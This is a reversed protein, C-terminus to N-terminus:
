ATTSCTVSRRYCSHRSKGGGGGSEGKKGVGPILSAAGKLVRGTAKWTGTVYKSVGKVTGTALRGAGKLLGKIARGRNDTLGLRMDELTLVVNGQRDVVAGDIDKISRIVKGAAQSLYGNNKMVVAMLRPTQEGKVYVDRPKNM